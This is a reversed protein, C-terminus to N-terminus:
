WYHQNFNKLDYHIPQMAYTKKGNKKPSKRKKMKQRKKVIKGINESKIWVNM